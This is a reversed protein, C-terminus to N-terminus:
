WTQESDDARRASRLDRQLPTCGTASRRPWSGETSKESGVQISSTGIGSTGGHVLFSEGPKLAGRMFVNSYATFFSECIAASQVMSMNKPIPLAQLHPAFFMGVCMCNMTTYEAYGGGTLIGCVKDGVKFGNCDEGLAVVTGSCELGPINSAGKPPPYM